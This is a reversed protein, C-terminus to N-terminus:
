FIIPRLYFYCIMVSWVFGDKDLGKLLVM